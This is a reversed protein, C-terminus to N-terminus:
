SLSSSKKKLMVIVGAQGLKVLVGETRPARRTRHTFWQIVAYGRQHSVKRAVAPLQRHRCAFRVLPQGVAEGRMPQRLM